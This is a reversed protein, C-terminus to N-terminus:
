RSLCSCLKKFLTVSFKGQLVEEKILNLSDYPEKSRRYTKDRYTLPEYCDILGILQSEKSINREGKPYGSGDIREHHELAVRAISPDLGAEKRILAHGITTHASYSQFEEDTLRHDAEILDQNIKSTGVDHLLACLALNKTKEESLKHYFCYRLTLLMVNITHEIVIDSSKKITTLVELFKAEESYRDFIIAVTEPLYKLGEKGQHHLAEKVILYLTSRVKQLDNSLCQQELVGNLTTFLEKIAADRDKRHVFLNPHKEEEVRLDELSEDKKKYLVFSNDKAQCYLPTNKFLNMQSKKVLYYDSM